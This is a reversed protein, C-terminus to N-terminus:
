LEIKDIDLEIDKESLMFTGKEVLISSKVILGLDDIQSGTKILDDPHILIYKSNPLKTIADKITQIM